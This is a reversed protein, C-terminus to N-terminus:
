KPTEWYRRELSHALAEVAHSLTLKQQYSLREAKVVWPGRSGPSNVGSTDMLETITAILERERAGLEITGLTEFASDCFLFADAISEAEGEAHPLM